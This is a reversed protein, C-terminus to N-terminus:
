GSARERVLGQEVNWRLHASRAGVVVAVHDEVVHVLLRLEPGPVAQHEGVVQVAQVGSVDVGVDADVPSPEEGYTEYNGALLGRPRTTGDRSLRPPVASGSVFVPPRKVLSVRVGCVGPM